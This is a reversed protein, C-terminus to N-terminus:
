YNAINKVVFYKFCYLTEKPFIRFNDWYLFLQGYFTKLKKWIKYDHVNQKKRQLYGFNGTSFIHHLIKENYRSNTKDYIPMLEKKMGLKEVAITAFYRWFKTLGLFEIDRELKDMDIKEHYKAIYCMWDCLQRLGLGSTMYHNLAHAFIFIADFRYPPLFIKSTEGAKKVVPEETELCDKMWKHFRSDFKKSITLSIDGHLEVKIGDVSYEVHKKQPNEEVVQIGLDNFAIKAKEYSSTDLGTFFDVDGTTRRYPNRYCLGVGQGKLLMVRVGKESFYEVMSPITQYMEINEKELENTRKLMLFYISKPPRKTEPLEKIADTVIGTVTQQDSLALIENWNVKEQEFLDTDIPTGWLGAKTLELLQECVPKLM